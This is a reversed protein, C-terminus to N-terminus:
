RYPPHDGIEALEEPSLPGFKYCNIVSDAVKALTPEAVYSGGFLGRHKEILGDTEM